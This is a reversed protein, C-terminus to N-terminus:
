SLEAYGLLPASNTSLEGSVMCRAVNFHRIGANYATRLFQSRQKPSSIRFLSACGFGLSTKHIGGAGLTVTPLPM